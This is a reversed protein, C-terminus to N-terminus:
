PHQFSHTLVPLVQKYTSLNSFSSNLSILQGELPCIEGGHAPIIQM